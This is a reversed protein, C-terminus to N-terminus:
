APIEKPAPSTAVRELEAQDVFRAALISARVIYLLTGAITLSVLGLLYEGIYFTILLNFLM